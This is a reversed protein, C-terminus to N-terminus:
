KETRTSDPEAVDVPTIEQEKEGIVKEIGWDVMDFALDPLVDKFVILSIVVFLILILCGKGALLLCSGKIKVKDTM